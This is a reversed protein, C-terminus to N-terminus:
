EVGSLALLSKVFGKFKELGNTGGNVRFRVSRWDRANAAADVRHKKFYFALAYAAHKPALLLDPSLVYDFGRHKSLELYNEQWTTQVLGRGYFGSAWYANQRAWLIPQRLASARVERCPLFSGTEVAITAAAAVRVLDSDIGEAHLAETVFPWVREINGVPCGTAQAIMSHILM